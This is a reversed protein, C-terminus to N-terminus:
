QWGEVVSLPVNEFYSIPGLGPLPVSQGRGAHERVMAGVQERWSESYAVNDWGFTSNPAPPLVLPGHGASPLKIGGVFWVRNGSSLTRQIQQLVDDIPHPSIMKTM